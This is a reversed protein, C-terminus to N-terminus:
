VATPDKPIVVVEQLPAPLTIATATITMKKRAPGFSAKAVPKGDPHSRMGTDIVAVRIDSGTYALTSLGPYARMVATPVSSHSSGVSPSGVTYYAAELSEDVSVHDINPTKEVLKQAAQAPVSIAHGNILPLARRLNAGQGRVADEDAASAANRYTVILDVKDAGKAKIMQLARASFATDSGGASAGSISPICLFAVLTLGLLKEVVSAKKNPTM